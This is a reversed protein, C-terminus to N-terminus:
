DGRLWSVVGRALREFETKPANEYLCAEFLAQMDAADVGGSSSIAVIQSHKPIDGWAQETSFAARRGVVHMVIRTDPTDQAYIVGKMRYVSSPVQEIARQVAKLSLPEQTTWSWTDFVTSHDTHHHDHHEGHEHVHIDAPTREIINEPDFTGVGLLLELPVDAHTTRFVRSRPMIRNIRQELKNLDDESVLDTKNLVIIDAMGIQNMVLVAYQNEREARPFQEADVVTIISDIRVRSNMRPVDRFTLAVELPDSVGSTELIIYEPPTDTKFLDEVAQMLDGRITCCICGNALSITDGDVSTAQVLENDINVSGFDNVLVAIKLGHDSNLIRNLLTTKGAGLFGTIITLPVISNTQTM